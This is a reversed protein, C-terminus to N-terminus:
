KANPLRRYNGPTCNYLEQFRHHLHSKDTFGWKLAIEDISMSTATLDSAAGNLRHRLMFDPFGIGMVERFKRSFLNRNMGAAAAIEEVSIFNNHRFATELIRTILSYDENGLRPAAAPGTQWNELLLLLLEVTKNALWLEAYKDPAAIVEALKRAINLVETKKADPMRPREAPAARFPAFLDCEGGAKSLFGPWVVLILARCPVELVKYGHPEWPGCLWVDGARCETEWQRYYRTMGGELLIGLELAYHMDFGSDSRSLHENLLCKVPYNEAVGTALRNIKKDILYDM